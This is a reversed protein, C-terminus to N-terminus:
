CALLTFMKERTATRRTGRGSRRKENARTVRLMELTSSRASARQVPSCRRARHSCCAFSAHPAVAPCPYAFPCARYGVTCGALLLQRPRSPPSARALGHSPLRLRPLSARASAMRRRVSDLCCPRWAATSAPASAAFPPRRSPSCLGTPAPTSHASAARDFLGAHAARAPLSCAPSSALYSRAPSNTPAILNSTLKNSGILVDLM